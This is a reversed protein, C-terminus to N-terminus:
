GKQTSHNDLFVGKAPVIRSHIEVDDDYTSAKGPCAQCRRKGFTLEPKRENLALWRGRRAGIPIRADVGQSRCADRKEIADTRPPAEFGPADCRNVVHANEAIVPARPQIKGGVFRPRQLECRGDFGAPKVMSQPLAEFM